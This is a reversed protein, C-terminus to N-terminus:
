CMRTGRCNRKNKIGLENQTTMNKKMHISVSFKTLHVYQTPILEPINSNKFLHDNCVDNASLNVM